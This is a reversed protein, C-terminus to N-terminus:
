PISRMIEAALISEAWILKQQQPSPAAPVNQDADAHLPLEVTFTTGQGTHETGFHRRKFATGIGFYDGHGAREPRHVAM